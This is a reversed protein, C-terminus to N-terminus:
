SNETMPMNKIWAGAEKLNDFYCLEIQGHADMHPSLQEDELMYLANEPIVFAIKRVGNPHLRPHFEHNAWEQGEADVKLGRLNVIWKLNNYEKKHEVYLEFKKELTAKFEEVSVDGLWEEYIAPINKDLTIAVFAKQYIIQKM